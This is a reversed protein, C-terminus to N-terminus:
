PPFPMPSSMTTFVSSAGQAENGQWASRAGSAIVPSDSPFHDRVPGNLHLQGKELRQWSYTHAREWTAQAHNDGLRRVDRM